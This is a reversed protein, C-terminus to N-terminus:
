IRTPGAYCTKPTTTNSRITFVPQSKGKLATRDFVSGTGFLGMGPMPEYTGDM